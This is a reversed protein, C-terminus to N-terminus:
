YGSMILGIGMCTTCATIIIALAFWVISIIVGATAFGKGDTEGTQKYKNLAIISVVLGAIAIFFSLVFGVIALTKPSDGSGGGNNVPQKNFDNNEM